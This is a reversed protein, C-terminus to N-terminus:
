AYVVAVNKRQMQKEDGDLDVCNDREKGNDGARRKQGVRAVRWTRRM